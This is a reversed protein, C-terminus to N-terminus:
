PLLLHIRGVCFLVVAAFMFMYRSESHSRFVVVIM